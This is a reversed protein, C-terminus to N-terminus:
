NLILIRSSSPQLKKGNLFIEVSEPRGINVWFKRRAEYRLVQGAIFQGGAYVQSSDDAIVKVWSHDGLIHVVLVKRYPSSPSQPSLAIREKWKKSGQDSAVSVPM